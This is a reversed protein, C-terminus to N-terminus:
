MENESYKKRCNPSGLKGTGSWALGAIEWNLAFRIADTYLEDVEGDVDNAEETRGADLARVRCCAMRAPFSSESPLSTPPSASLALSSSSGPRCSTSSSKFFPSTYLIPGSPFEKCV